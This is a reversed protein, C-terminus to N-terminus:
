AARMKPHTQMKMEARMPRVRRRSVQVHYVPTVIPMPRFLLAAVMKERYAAFMTAIVGISLAFATMFVLTAVVVFM